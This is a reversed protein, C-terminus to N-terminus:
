EVPAELVAFCAEGGLCELRVPVGLPLTVNPHATHGSSLGLAVPVDLGHLAELLVEELTYDEHFGPACGKMDGFVVGSVGELAGSARLQRLMRDVRYPKEDVDEVFLITPEDASRLAWPTGAAAALLSLCGGRLVGVGSGGALAVLDDPGSAYPEGEGTLAHWLSALDYATEGDALERAVMPGHLSTLGLREMELHLLTIDSYGVLPKPNTRCCTATSTRCSSCRARGAARASSRRGRRPRRLARAAAARPERGDGGHLGQAGPRGRGRARRLRAAGAGRRGPQAAGRGGAGRARGRRDRDGRRLARPKTAVTLGPDRLAAAIAEALARHEGRGAAQRAQRPDPDHTARWSGSRSCRPDPGDAAEAEKFPIEEAELARILGEMAEVQADHGSCLALLDCGAKAALVAIQAPTWHKALAKMELADTVVVGAYGLEERLLGTVVKRSLTAPLADDIERVLLHSAMVTAVGAEIAKRFPRLEVDDLRSRSHDVSPLDLHSDVDTDGHGPFHKACAVVGSEQFGRIMAAGLRGVLDPDDGFSRDGIVPNRPNTDVDM